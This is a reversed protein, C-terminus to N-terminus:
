PGRLREIVSRATNRNPTMILSRGPGAVLDTAATTALDAPMSWNPFLIFRRGTGERDWGEPVALREIESIGTIRELEGGEGLTASMYIRQSADAFPPHSFTPPSIPRITISAWTVFVHCAHLHGRIQSWPYKLDTDGIASDLFDRILAERDQAIPSPIKTSETRSFQTSDAKFYSIQAAPIVDEFLDLLGSYIDEHENRDVNVSWLSSIFDASAHADDLILLNASDIKPRTNFIASYTTVAVAASAEFANFDEPDYENQRGVLVRADISYDDALTGVQHALQKYPCLYAVRHDKTQRVFDAILLGILTKGTGTPLELAIDSTDLHNSHWTRLVNDQHAWLHQIDPSRGHLNRFLSQPDSPM